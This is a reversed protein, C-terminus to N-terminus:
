SDNDNMGIAFIDLINKIEMPVVIFQPPRSVRSFSGPVFDRKKEM